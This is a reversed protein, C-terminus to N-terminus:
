EARLRHELHRADRHRQRVQELERQDQQWQALRDVVDHEWAQPRPLVLEPVARPQREREEEFARRRVEALAIKEAM